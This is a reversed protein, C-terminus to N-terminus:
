EPKRTSDLLRLKAIDRPATWFAAFCLVASGILVFPFIQFAFLRSHHHEVYGFLPPSITDGLIHLVFVAMAYAMSRQTPSSVTSIQANVAPMCAFYLFFTGILAATGIERSSTYVALWLLPLGLLFGIAAVLSYGGPWKKSLRDGVAGSIISGFIGALMGVGLAATIQGGTWGKVDKFFEKGFHVLPILAFAAFSQAIMIFLLTRNRLLSLYQKLGKSPGSHGLNEHGGRPPDILMFIAVMLALGPLGGAYFAARWNPQLAEALVFGAIAGLPLAAFFASMARGRVRPDFYDSVLAPGVALCGAEGVGVLIRFLILHWVEQALGCGITALSWVAVCAAFIKPRSYRDSFAGVFPSALLYGLTFAAYVWGWTGPGMRISDRIGEESASAVFRDLYNLFNALIIIALAYLSYRKSPAIASPGPM